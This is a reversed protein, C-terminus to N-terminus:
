RKKKELYFDVLILFHQFSFTAPKEFKTALQPVYFINLFIAAAIRAAVM